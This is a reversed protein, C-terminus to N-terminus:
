RNEAKRTVMVLGALLWILLGITGGILTLTSTPRIVRPPLDKLSKIEINPSLGLSTQSEQSYQEALQDSEEELGNLQGQLVSLEEDIYPILQDIWGVYAEPTSDPSPQNQLLAMWGPTFQALRTALSLMKWREAPALPQDTPLRQLSNRWSQLAAKASSLEQQRLNMQTREAAIAELHQDTRFTSQAADVAEKVKKKVVQSWAQAAQAAHKPEKHEAVLSWTGASRWDADLMARLQDPTVKEWYPDLRQLTKLTEQIFEDLLIITELQSMQYYNYNDVNSYKPSTLALFNTDSYARYPNLGVYIQTTARYYSPWIFSAVWGLLCGLAIAAIM